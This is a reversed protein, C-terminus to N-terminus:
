YREKGKDPRFASGCEEEDPNFVVYTGTKDEWWAVRDSSMEKSEVSLDSSGDRSAKSKKRLIDEIFERLDEKTSLTWPMKRNKIPKPHVFHDKHEALAKAAITDAITSINEEKFELGCEGSM